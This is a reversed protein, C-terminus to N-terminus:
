PASEAPAPLPVAVAFGARWRPHQMAASAVNVAAGVPDAQCGIVSGEAAMPASLTEVGARDVFSYSGMSWDVFDEAAPSFLSLLWYGRRGAEGSEPLLVQPFDGEQAEVSEALGWGRGREGGIGADGLLRFAAVVREAWETWATEDRYVAVCWLGAGPAFEICATEHPGAAGAAMRDIAAARRVAIRCPAQSGAAILCESRYDVEWREERIGRGALLDGILGLPVFRASKWRVRPSAAPPWIDRPPIAFLTKGAFLFLSSFRVAPEISEYQARRWEGDLDLRAMAYAVASYLTDSHAFVATQRREGSAPGFRWPGSPRIKILQARPM